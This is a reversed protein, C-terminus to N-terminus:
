NKILISNNPDNVNTAGLKNKNVSITFYNNTIKFGEKTSLHGGQGSPLRDNLSLSNPKVIESLSPSM